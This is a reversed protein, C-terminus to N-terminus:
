QRHTIKIVTDNRIGFHYEEKEEESRGDNKENREKILMRRVARQAETLDPSLFVKDKFEIVNQLRKSAKLAM